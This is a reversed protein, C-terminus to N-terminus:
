VTSVEKCAHCVLVRAQAYLGSSDGLAVMKKRWVVSHTHRGLLSAKVDNPLRDIAADTVHALKLDFVRRPEDAEYIGSPMVLRMLISPRVPPYASPLSAQWAQWNDMIDSFSM